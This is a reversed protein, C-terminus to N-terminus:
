RTSTKRKHARSAPMADQEQTELAAYELWDITPLADSAFLFKMGRM